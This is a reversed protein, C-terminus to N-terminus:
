PFPFLHRRAPPPPYARASAPPRRYGASGHRPEGPQQEEREDEARPGRGGRTLRPLWQRRAVGGRHVPGPGGRSLRPLLQRRLVRGRHLAGDGVERTAPENDAVDPQMSLFPARFPRRTSMEVRAALGLPRSSAPYRAAPRRNM